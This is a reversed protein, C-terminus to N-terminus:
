NRRGFPRKFWSQSAKNATQRQLLLKTTYGGFLERDEIYMWDTIQDQTFTYQSLYKLGPLRPENALTGSFPESSLDLDAMWIHEAKGNEVIRVKVLFRGLDDQTSRFAHLFDGLSAKAASVAAQMEQDSGDVGVIENEFEGLM